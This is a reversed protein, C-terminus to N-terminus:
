EHREWREISTFPYGMLGYGREPFIYIHRDHVTLDHNPYERRETTPGAATDIKVYVVVRVAVVGAAGV